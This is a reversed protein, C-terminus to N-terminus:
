VITTRMTRTSSSLAPATPSPPIRTNRPMRLFTDLVQLGWPTGISEPHFQVGFLPREQHELSMVVGDETRSTIRLSSPVSEPDVTLSHYRMAEFSPPLADLLRSDGRHVLSVKGHMPAPARVIRAGFFSAM